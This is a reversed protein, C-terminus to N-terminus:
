VFDHWYEARMTAGRDSRGRERLVKEEPGKMRMPENEYENEHVCSSNMGKRRTGM